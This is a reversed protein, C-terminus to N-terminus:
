QATSTNYKSMPSRDVCFWDSNHWEMFYFFGLNSSSFVWSFGLDFNRIGALHQQIKLNFQMTQKKFQYNILPKTVIDTSIV